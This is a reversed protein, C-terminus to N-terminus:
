EQIRQQLAKNRAQTLDKAHEKCFSMGDFIVEAELFKDAYEKGTDNLMNYTIQEM